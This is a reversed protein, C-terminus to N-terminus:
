QEGGLIREITKFTDFDVKGYLLSMVTQMDDASLKPAPIARVESKADNIVRKFEEVEEKPTVTVEEIDDKAIIPENMTEKEKNELRKDHDEEYRKSYVEFSIAELEDETLEMIERYKDVVENPLWRRKGHEFDTLTQPNELGIMEAMEKVKIRKGLRIEQLKNAPIQTFPKLPPMGHEERYKMKYEANKENYAKCAENQLNVMETMSIGFLEMYNKLQTSSKFNRIKGNEIDYVFQADCEGILEAVDKACLNSKERLLQLKSKVKNEDGRKKLLEVDYKPETAIMNLVDIRNLNFVKAIRDIYVISQPYITSKKTIWGYILSYNCDVDTNDLFDKLSKYGKDYIEKGLRNVKVNM